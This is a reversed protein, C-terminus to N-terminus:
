SLEYVLTLRLPRLLVAESIQTFLPNLTVSAWVAHTPTINPAPVSPISSAQMESQHANPPEPKIKSCYKTSALISACISLWNM